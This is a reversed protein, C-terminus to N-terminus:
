VNQRKNLWWKKIRPLSQVSLLYGVVPVLAGLYYTPSGIIFMVLSAVAYTIVVITLIRFLSTEWAKDSEVKKNREQILKLESEIKLIREEM